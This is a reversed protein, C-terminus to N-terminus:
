KYKFAVFFSSNNRQISLMVSDGKNISKVAKEFDIINNINFTIGGSKHIKKIIDGEKINTRADHFKPDVNIVIVGNTNQNIGYKERLNNTINAVEIGLKKVLKEKSGETIDKSESQSLKEIKDQDRHAVKMRLSLENGERFIFVDVTKGPKIAAVVNRLQNSTGVEKGDITMLIDGQKIGAKDAPQGKYVDAILVGKRDGFNLADRTVPDIDQIAVGIWGREVEGHYILDEMIRQAMNIPIAFGIGMYGGSKTYIMTNIGILEGDINVLAGGSNGPNIAADTQIFNQYSNGDNVHRGIASVIGATVTSTLSFPNGIAIVWEGPRLHDSNGLYAVPLNSVKSKIKIVAVDSLSDNGIIEAEFVRGDNLKVEIEDAGAVVHYNTLIHGKSSVIVGSGLGKQRREEKRIEPQKHHKRPTNFFHEFPDNEFFPDNFFNYFPNSNFVITDIKTPIVSVVSPVVNEAVDAFINKFSGLFNDSYNTPNKEAGFTVSGKPPHKSEAFICNSDIVSFSIFFLLLSIASYNILRKM